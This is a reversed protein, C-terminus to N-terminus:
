MANSDPPLGHARDVLADRRQPPKSADEDQTDFVSQGDAAPDATTPRVEEPIVGSQQQSQRQSQWQIQSPNQDNM